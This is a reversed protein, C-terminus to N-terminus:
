KRRNNKTIEVRLKDNVLKKNENDLKSKTGDDLLNYYKNLIDLVKMKDYLKLKIGDRGESVESILSGDVQNSEGLEVYSEEYTQINGDEDLIPKGNSDYQIKDRKGFKVYDMIDAFAIDIYKQLIVDKSLLIESLQGQKLSEIQDRVKVNRLLNCGLVM